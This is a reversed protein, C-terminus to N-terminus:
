RFELKRLLMSPQLKGARISLVVQMLDSWHKELVEWDITDKFLSDIHKYVTEKSPRYFKLDKWHRIRL